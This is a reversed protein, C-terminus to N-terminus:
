KKKEKMLLYMDAKKQYYLSHVQKKMLPELKKLGENTKNRVRQYILDMVEYNKVIKGHNEQRAKNLSKIQSPKTTTQGKVTIHIDQDDDSSESSDSYTNM